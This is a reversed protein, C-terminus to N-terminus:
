AREKELCKKLKLIGELIEEERLHAYGMLVEGTYRGKIIALQEVTTILLGNASIRELLLPTFELDNFKVILHMGASRGIIEVQNAFHNNLCEILYDRRKRYIRKMRTIHKELYRNEIFKVLALQNLSNSHHDGLRKWEKFEKVLCPPLVLYGLRLSPFMIKSFTGVYIVRDADLEQISCVPPGEYRFESDYDDEVIYTGVNRAFRILEIRRQISLIGGRPFQHSPTVFIFAPCRHEPFSDTRIGENDTPIPRILQTHYYFTKLVNLNTPDEIWVEKDSTLLCKGILSLGQKAGSTIIIQEPSCEIGRTKRLYKALTNRLEIRGEPYDYGLVSPPAKDYAQKLLNMWERRPFFEVAPTGSDFSIKDQDIATGSLATVTYDKISQRNGELFTGPAVYIGSNPIIELYGESALQDYANLVTNRSVKLCSALERSSPLKERVGMEGNLIKLRIQQYIQKTLSIDSDRNLTIWLM